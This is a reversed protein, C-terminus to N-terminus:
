KLSFPRHTTIKKFTGRNIKVKIKSEESFKFDKLIHYTFAMESMWGIGNYYPPLCTKRYSNLGYYRNNNPISPLKPRKEIDNNLWLNCTEPITQDYFTSMSKTFKNGKCYFIQDTGAYMIDKLCSISANELTNITELDLRSKFIVDYSSLENKFTKLVNDLHAWQYMSSHFLQKSLGKPLPPNHKDIFAFKISKGFKKWNVINEDNYTGCFIDANQLFKSMSSNKVVDSNRYEGILIVAYSIKNKNTFKEKNM